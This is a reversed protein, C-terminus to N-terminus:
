CLMVANAFETWPDMHAEPLGTDRDRKLIELRRPEFLENRISGSLQVTTCHACVDPKPAM